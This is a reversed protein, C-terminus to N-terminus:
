LSNDAASLSSVLPFLNFLWVLNYIFKKKVKNRTSNEYTTDPESAHRTHANLIKKPEKCLKTSKLLM